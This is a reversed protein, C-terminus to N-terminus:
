RTPERTPRTWSTEDSSEAWYYTDGTAQDKVAEWGPPLPCEHQQPAPAPPKAKYPQPVGSGGGSYTAMECAKADRDYRKQRAVKQRDYRKQRASAVRGWPAAPVDGDGHNRCVFVAASAVLALGLLTGVVIGAIARLSLGGDEEGGLTTIARTVVGNSRLM